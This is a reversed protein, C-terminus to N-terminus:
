NGRSTLIRLASECGSLGESYEWLIQISTGLESPQLYICGGEIAYDSVREACGYMYGGPSKIMQWLAKRRPNPPENPNLEMADLENMYAVNVDTIAVTTAITVIEGGLMPMISFNPYRPPVCKNTAESVPTGWGCASLSIALM